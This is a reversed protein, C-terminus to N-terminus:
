LETSTKQKPWLMWIMVLMTLASPLLAGAAMTLVSKFLGNRATTQSNAILARIVLAAYVYLGDTFCNLALLLPVKVAINGPTIQFLKTVSYSLLAASPRATAFVLIHTKCEAIPLSASLLTTTFGLTTTVKGVLELLHKTLLGLSPLDVPAGNDPKQPLATAAYGINIGSSIEGIVLAFTFLYIRRQHPGFSRTTHSAPSPHSATDETQQRERLEMGDQAAVTQAPSTNSELGTFPNAGLMRSSLRREVVLMVLVGAIHYVAVATPSFPLASTGPYSLTSAAGLLVSSLFSTLSSGILRGTGFTKLSALLSQSTIFLPLLGAVFTVVGHSVWEMSASLSGM